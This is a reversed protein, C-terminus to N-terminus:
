CCSGSDPSCCDNPSTTEGTTTKTEAPTRLSGNNAVFPTAEEAPIPDAPTLFYFHEAYPAQQLREFTQDSVAQRQGREMWQGEEDLVAQFPGRYIAAQHLDLPPACGCEDGKYAQVTVSFFEIGDVVQWPEADRKVIEIGHFGAAAFAELFDSETLAGSICGSWLEPDRQLEEPVPEDSVIDSIVARGGGRIVRFIEEFLRIKDENAVLNLVCNSVVVDVSDDPILPHTQRLQAARENAALFSAVDNAPEARLSADLRDLDLALDQIRGKRFEVNSYGITEAVLPANRNAVELMDDTMDVGIVRGSPGVVQSAIFCIKGTGSGLDLVTEGTKLYKSPDGCGYDKAIVEEPIAKLYSADYDVPCCLASERAQAAAAYRDKVSSEASPITKLETTPMPQIAVSPHADCTALTRCM